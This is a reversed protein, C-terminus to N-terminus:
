DKRFGVALFLAGCGMLGVSAARFLLGAPAFYWLAAGASSMALGIKARGNM